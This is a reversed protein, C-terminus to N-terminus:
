TLPPSHGAITLSFGGFPQMTEEQVVYWLGVHEVPIYLHPIFTSILLPTSGEEANRPLGKEKKIIVTEISTSTEHQVGDEATLVKELFLNIVFLLPVPRKEYSSVVHQTDITISLPSLTYASFAILLLIKHLLRRKM